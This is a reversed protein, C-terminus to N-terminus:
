ELDALPASIARSKQPAPKCKLTYLHKACCNRNRTRILKRQTSVALRRSRHVTPQDARTADKAHKFRMACKALSRDNGTTRSAVSTESESRRNCSKRVLSWAPFGTPKPLKLAHPHKHRQKSQHSNAQICSRITTKPQGCQKSFMCPSLHM